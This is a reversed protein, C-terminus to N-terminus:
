FPLEFGNTFVALPLIILPSLPTNKFEQFGREYLIENRYQCSNNPVYYCKSNSYGRNAQAILVQGYGTYSQIRGEITSYPQLLQSHPHKITDRAVNSDPNWNSLNNSCSPDSSNIKNQPIPNLRQPCLWNLTSGYKEDFRLCGIGKDVVNNRVRSRNSRILIPNKFPRPFLVVHPLRLTV